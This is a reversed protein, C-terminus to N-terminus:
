KAALLAVPARVRATELAQDLPVADEIHSLLERYGLAQRATRGIPRDRDVLSQVEELFGQEMQVDYRANIRDIMRERELRLGLLKFPVDPYDEM